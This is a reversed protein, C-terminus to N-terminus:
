QAEVGAYWMVAANLGIKWHPVPWLMSQCSAEKALHLQASDYYGLYTWGADDRRGREGKRRPSDPALRAYKAPRLM